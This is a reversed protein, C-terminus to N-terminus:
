RRRKQRYNQPNEVYGCYLLKLNPLMSMLHDPDMKERIGFGDSLYASLKSCRKCKYISANGSVRQPPTNFHKSWRVMSCRVSVLRCFKHLGILCRLDKM